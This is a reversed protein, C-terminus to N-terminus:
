DFSKYRDLYIKLTFENYQTIVVIITIAKYIM